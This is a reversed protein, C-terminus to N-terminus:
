SPKRAAKKAKRDAKKAERELCRIERVKRVVRKLARRDLKAASRLHMAVAVTAKAPRRGDYAVLALSLRKGSVPWDGSPLLPLGGHDRARDAWARLGEGPKGIRSQAEDPAMDESLLYRIAAAHMAASKLTNGRVRKQEDEVLGEWEAAYDILLRLVLFVGDNSGGKVANPHAKAAAIFGPDCIHDGLDHIVRYAEVVMRQDYQRGKLANERTPTYTLLSNFFATPKAPNFTLKAEPRGISIKTM